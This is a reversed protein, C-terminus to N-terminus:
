IRKGWKNRYRSDAIEAKTETKFGAAQGLAVLASLGFCAGGWHGFPLVCRCVRRCFGRPCFQCHYICPCDLAGGSAPDGSTGSWGLIPAEMNEVAPPTCIIPQKLFLRICGCVCVALLQTWAATFCAEIWFLSLSELYRPWEQARSRAWDIKLLMLLIIEVYLLFATLTCLLVKKWFPRRLPVPKIRKSISM